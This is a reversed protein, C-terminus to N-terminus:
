SGDVPAICGPRSVYEDGDWYEYAVGRRATATYGAALAAELVYKADLMGSQEVSSLLYNQSWAYGDRMAADQFDSWSQGYNLPGPDIASLETTVGDIGLGLGAAVRGAIQRQEVTELPLQWTREDYSPDELAGEGVADAYVSGTLRLRMSTPNGNKDRDVEIAVTGDYSAKANDMGYIEDDRQQGDVDGFGGFAANAAGKSSAQYFETMSGDKKTREGEYLGADVKAGLDVAIVNAFTGNLSAEVKSGDRTFTEDPEVKEADSAQTMWDVVSRRWGDEGVLTDKVTDAVTASLLEEAESQSGVYFVDGQESVKTASAGAGLGAGYRDDGSTISADFGIGVELGVGSESSRTMRYGGDGLAEIFWTVGGDM